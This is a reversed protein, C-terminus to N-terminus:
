DNKPSPWNQSNRLPSTIKMFKIVIMNERIMIIWVIMMIMILGALRLSVSGLNYALRRPKSAIALTFSSLTLSHKCCILYSKSRVEFYKNNAKWEKFSTNYKLEYFFMKKTKKIWINQILYRIKFWLLYNNELFWKSKILYKLCLTPALIQFSSPSWWGALRKWTFASAIRCKLIRPQIYSKLM